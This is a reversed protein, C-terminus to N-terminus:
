KCICSHQLCNCKLTILLFLYIYQFSELQTWYFIWIKGSHLLVSFSMPQVRTVTGMHVAVQMYVWGWLSCFGGCLSVSAGYKWKHISSLQFVIVAYHNPSHVGSDSQRIWIRAGGKSVRYTEASEKVEKCGLQRM